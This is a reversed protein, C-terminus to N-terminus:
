EEVEIVFKKEGEEPDPFIINALISVICVSTVTDRFLFQLLKPLHELLAPVSSFGMGIGFTIGLVLMNRDSFGSKALMKIGNLMIMAFVTVVAGGLVSNPMVSIIAGVKPFLGALILVMAGTAICWKNVVKTMAVLGANQGFATNPLTNFLAALASGFSDGMIAGSTEETTAERNFAAITIGSTNGITELGSVIYVAAFSLIADLHFTMGFHLPRPVSIWGANAVPSFDVMGMFIAAVYGVLIAILLSSIKVMGKGFKQLFLVTVLVLTGLLLNKPSGYDKSAVGGAFYNVGVALLKSGMAILVSGVVLPPFFRKLPKIFIGMIFEVISGLLAGGMIGSIGYMQGVTISTPVFAFSTGMVIPLEGGIRPLFWNKKGIPYLQILTTIGSIIMAAQIMIIMDPKSLSVVGAVVFVPALNGTFMALVHQLGLPLAVGLSPRGHLQYVLERDGVASDVQNSM